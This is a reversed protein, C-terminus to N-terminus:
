NANIAVHVLDSSVTVPRDDSVVAFWDVAEAPLQSEYCEGVKAPSLALWERKVVDPNAKAWYVEVKTLTCPATIRFRARLPDSTKEVLVHPLPQGQGKLYYDFFPVEMALWNSQGGEPTPYPQFPTPTFPKPKGFVTGGPLPVNHNANPAYLHNKEGPIADLTAQVATPWYFYDNAAAAIFFKSKIGNARRGPDLDRLWREHEDAPM